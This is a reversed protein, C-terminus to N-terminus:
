KKWVKIGLYSLVGAGILTGFVLTILREILTVSIALNAPVGFVIFVSAITVDVTGLGGPLLPVMGVIAPLTVALMLMPLSPLHGFAQFIIFLRVMGFTWLIVSFGAVLSAIKARGVISHAGAYFKKIVRVIKMKGVRKRFIKLIRTVFGGIRGAAVGSRLIKSSILLISIVAVVWVGVIILMTSTSTAYFSMLLGLILLSLFIPLDLVLEGVMTAFGSSYPVRQTKNLLYIRAVPDGGAYTFPTLNNIFISGFIVLYLDHLRASYGVASLSIRWRAAWFLICILYMGFALAVWGYNAQTLAQAMGALNERALTVLALFILGVVILSIVTVRKSPRIPRRIM